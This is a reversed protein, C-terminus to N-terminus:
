AFLHLYSLQLSGRYWDGQLLSFDPDDLSRTFKNLVICQLMNNLQWSYITGVTLQFAEPLFGAIVPFAFLQNDIFFEKKGPFGAAPFELSCVKIVAAYQGFALQLSGWSYVSVSGSSIGCSGSICIFSL